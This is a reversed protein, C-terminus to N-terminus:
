KAQKKLEDKPSPEPEPNPTEQKAKKAKRAQNYIYKSIEKNDAYKAAIYNTITKRCEPCDRGVLNVYCKRCLQHGCPVCFVDPPEFCVPCISNEDEMTVTFKSKASKLIIMDEIFHVSMNSITTDDEHLEILRLGVVDYSNNYIVLCYYLSAVHFITVKYNNDYGIETGYYGKGTKHTYEAIKTKCILSRSYRNYDASIIKVPIYTLEQKFDIKNEYSSYTLVIVCTESKFNAIINNGNITIKSANSLDKNLKYTKNYKKIMVCKGEYVDIYYSEVINSKRVTVSKSM